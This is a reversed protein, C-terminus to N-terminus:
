RAPPINATIRLRVAAASVEIDGMEGVVHFVGDSYELVDISGYDRTGDPDIHARADPLDRLGSLAMVGEFSLVARRYCTYENAPPPSYSPHSPWLSAEIEFTLRGVAPDYGWGLVWSDELDVGVFEPMDRWNM